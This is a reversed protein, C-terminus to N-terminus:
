ATYLVVNDQPWLFCWCLVFCDTYFHLSLQACVLTPRVMCWPRVMGYQFFCLQTHGPYNCYFYTLTCLDPISVILAYCVCSLSFM